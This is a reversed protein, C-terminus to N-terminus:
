AQTVVPGEYNDAASPGEAISTAASPGSLSDASPSIRLGRISGTQKDLTVTGTQLFFPDARKDLPCSSPSEQQSPGTMRTWNRESRPHCFKLRTRDWKKSISTSESKTKSTKQGGEHGTQDGTNTRVEGRRDALAARVAGGRPSHPTPNIERSRAADLRISM